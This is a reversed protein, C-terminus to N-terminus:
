QMDFPPCLHILSSVKMNTIESTHSIPVKINRGEMMDYVFFHGHHQSGVLFQAGDQSFHACRVPYREFQVTQLKTNAKGDVQM